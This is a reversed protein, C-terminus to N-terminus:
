APNGGKKAKLGIEYGEKLINLNMRIIKDKGAFRATMAKRITELPIIGSSGTYAGLMAINASKASGGQLAIDNAPVLVETIDARGSLASILSTNICLIGGKKVMPGFKDLSPRNLVCIFMPNNIIPSGIPRDSVVVTCYATGGRMEPGYSPIWAVEKGEAMGAQALLQGILLIGQGGFGAFITEYQM